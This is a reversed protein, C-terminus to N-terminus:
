LTLPFLIRSFHLSPSLKRSLSVWVDFYVICFIGKTQCCPVADLVSTMAEGVEEGCCDGWERGVGGWLEKKGKPPTFFAIKEEM